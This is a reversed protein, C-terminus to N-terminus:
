SSATIIYHVIKSWAARYIGTWDAPTLDPSIRREIDLRVLGNGPGNTQPARGPRPFLIVRTSTKAVVECAMELNDEIFWKAHCGAVVQAKNDAAAFHYTDFQGFHQSLFDRTAGAIQHPRSTAISRDYGKLQEMAQTAGPTTQDHTDPSAWFKEYWTGLAAKTLGTAQQWNDTRAFAEYDWHQGQSGAFEFFAQEKNRVLPGDVDFVIHM